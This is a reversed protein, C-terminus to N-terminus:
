WGSTRQRKIAKGRNKPVVQSSPRPKARERGVREKGGSRRPGARRPGARPGTRSPPPRPASRSLFKVSDDSRDQSGEKSKIIKVSDDSSPSASRKRPAVDRGEREKRGKRTEVEKDKPKEKKGTEWDEKEAKVKEKEKVGTGGRQAKVKADQQRLYRGVVSDEIKRDLWALKQGDATTTIEAASRKSSPDSPPPPLM